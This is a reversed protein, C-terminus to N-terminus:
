QPSILGCVSIGGEVGVPARALGAGGSRGGFSIYDKM